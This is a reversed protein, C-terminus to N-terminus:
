PPLLTFDISYAGADGDWGDVFVYYTSGATVNVNALELDGPGGEEACVLQSSPTTCLTRIYLSADYSPALAAVLKGSAPATVKYVIEKTSASDCLGTGKRDPNALSTDGDVTYTDNFNALPVNVGPCDDGAITTVLTAGILFEGQSGGWGDAFVYYTSGAQAPITLTEYGGTFTDDSCAVTSSGECDTKVYLIPDLDDNIAIMDITLTGEAQATIAYVIEPSDFGGCSGEYQPPALSTDGGLTVDANPGVDAATGPCGFTEPVNVMCGNSCADDDVTNGDDCEETGILAHGDGCVAAVCDICDDEASTNGDDCAEGDDVVGNGCGAGASCASTCADGDEENGDDCEEVGARIFGDGCSAAVCGAVCGDTDDANQDDCDEVGVQVIGDGCKALTCDSLCQDTDDFNGDDCEEGLDPDAFGDGCYLEPGGGSAGSGGTGTDDGCSPQPALAVITAVALWRPLMAFGERHTTM